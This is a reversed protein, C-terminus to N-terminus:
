PTTGVSGSLHGKSMSKPKREFDIVTFPTGYNDEGGGVGDYIRCSESNHSDLTIKSITALKLWDFCYISTTPFLDFM